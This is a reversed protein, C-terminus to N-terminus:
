MHLYVLSMGYSYYSIKALCFNERNERAFALDHFNTGAFIEERVFNEQWTSFALRMATSRRIWLCLTTVRSQRLLM